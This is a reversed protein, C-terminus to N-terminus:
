KTHILLEITIGEGIEPMIVDGSISLRSKEGESNILELYLKNPSVQIKKVEGELIVIEDLGNKQPLGLFETMQQNRSYYEKILYKGLTTVTTGGYSAGGRVSTIVPGGLHEETATNMRNILRWATKFDIKLEDAAARISGTKEILQLLKVKGSGLIHKRRGMNDRMELWLKYNPFVGEKIRKKTAEPRM